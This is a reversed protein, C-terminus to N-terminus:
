SPQQRLGQGRRCPLGGAVCRDMVEVEPERQWRTREREGLLALHSGPTSAARPQLHALQPSLRRWGVCGNRASDLLMTTYRQRRSGRDRGVVVGAAAGDAAALCGQAEAGGERGGMSADMWADVRGKM